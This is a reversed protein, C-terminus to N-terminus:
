RNLEFIQKYYEPFFEEKAYMYTYYDVLIEEHISPGSKYAKCKTSYHKFFDAHTMSTVDSM